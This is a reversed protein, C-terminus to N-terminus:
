AADEVETSGSTKKQPATLSQDRWPIFYTVPANLIAEQQDKPLDKLLSIHGRDFLKNVAKLILEKTKQDKHYTSVQRQLIKEASSKNSSLFDEPTGRM